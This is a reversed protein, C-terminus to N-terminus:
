VREPMERHIAAHDTATLMARRAEHPTVLSAFM